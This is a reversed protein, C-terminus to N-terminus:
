WDRRKKQGAQKSLPRCQFNKFESVNGHFGKRQERREHVEFQQAELIVVTPEVECTVSKRTRTAIGTARKSRQSLRNVNDRIKSCVFLQSVELKTLNRVKATLVELFETRLKGTQLFKFRSRKRQLDFLPKEHRTWVEPNTKDLSVSRKCGFEIFFSVTINQNLDIRLFM